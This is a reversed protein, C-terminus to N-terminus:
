MQSTLTLNSCKEQHQREARSAAEQRILFEEFTENKPDFSVLGENLKDLAPDKTIRRRVTPSRRRRKFSHSARSFVRVNTQRSARSFIKLLSKVRYNKGPANRGCSQSRPQDDPLSRGEDDSGIIKKIYNKDGM